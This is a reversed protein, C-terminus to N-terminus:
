AKSHSKNIVKIFSGKKRKIRRERAEDHGGFQM